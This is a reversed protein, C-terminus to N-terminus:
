RIVIKKIISGQYLSNSLELLYLGSNLTSKEIYHPENGEYKNNFILRGFLDFLKITTIGNTFPTKVASIGTVPHPYIIIAQDSIEHISTNTICIINSIAECSVQYITISYCGNGMVPVTPLTAGPIANGDLSWQYTIGAGTVNSVFNTGM